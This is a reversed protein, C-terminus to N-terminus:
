LRKPQESPWTHLFFCGTLDHFTEFMCRLLASLASCVSKFSCNLWIHFNVLLGVSLKHNRWGYFVFCVSEASVLHGTRRKTPSSADGAQQHYKQTFQGKLKHNTHSPTPPDVCRPLCGSVPLKSDDIIRCSCASAGKLLRSMLIKLQNFLFIHMIIIILIIFSPLNVKDADKLASRTVRNGILSPSKLYFHYFTSDM